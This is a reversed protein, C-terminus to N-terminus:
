KEDHGLEGFDLRDNAVEPGAELSPPENPGHEGVVVHKASHAPPDEQGAEAARPHPAEGPAGFM